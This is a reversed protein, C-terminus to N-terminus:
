GANFSAQSFCCDGSIIFEAGKWEAALALISDSNAAHYPIGDSAVLIITDFAGANAQGILRLSAIDKATQIPVDIQNNGNTFCTGAPSTPAQWGAPCPKNYNLLWYQIFAVADSNSYVFQQWGRCTQPDAAGNCIAPSKFPKSNLQLSFAGEVQPPAGGVNGQVSTVGTIIDFSGEAANLTGAVEASFDNGNGVTQPRHGM